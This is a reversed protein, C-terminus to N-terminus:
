GKGQISAKWREKINTLIIEARHRITPFLTGLWTVIPFSWIELPGTLPPYTTPPPHPPPCEMSLTIFFPLWQQLVSPVESYPPNAGVQPYLECSWGYIGLQHYPTSNFNGTGGDESIPYVPQGMQQALAKYKDYVGLVYEKDKQTPWRVYWIQQPAGTHMNLYHKPMYKRWLEKYARTEPESLPYPGRYVPSNPDDSVGGGTTAEGDWNWDFNRNLDVGNANKRVTPFGDMNVIPVIITWNRKLIDKAAPESSTLLWEAYFYLVESTLRENGHCAGDFMVKGGNPNGIRFVYLDRGQVSKGFVEHSVLSPYLAELSLFDSILQERSRYSV